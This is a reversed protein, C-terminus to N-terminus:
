KVQWDLLRTYQMDQLRIRGNKVNTFGLPAEPTMKAFVQMTDAVVNRPERHGLM